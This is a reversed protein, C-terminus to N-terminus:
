NRESTHPGYNIYALNALNKPNPEKNPKILGLVESATLKAEKPIHM